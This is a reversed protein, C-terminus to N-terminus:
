VSSENFVTLINGKGQKEFSLKKLQVMLGTFWYFLKIFFKRKKHKTCLALFLFNAHMNIYTNKKKAQIM